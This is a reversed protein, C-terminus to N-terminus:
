TYIQHAFQSSDDKVHPRPIHLPTRLPAAADITTLNNAKKMYITNSFIQTTNKKDGFKQLLGDRPLQQQILSNNKVGFRSPNTQNEYNIMNTAPVKM